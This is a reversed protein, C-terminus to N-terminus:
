ATRAVQTPHYDSITDADQISRLAFVMDNTTMRDLVEDSYTFSDFTSLADRLGFISAYAGSSLFTGSNGTTPNTKTCNTFNYDVIPQTSAQAM